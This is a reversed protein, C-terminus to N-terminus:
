GDSVDATRKLILEAVALTGDDDNEVLSPTCLEEGVDADELNELGRRFYEIGESDLEFVCNGDDKEYLRFHM